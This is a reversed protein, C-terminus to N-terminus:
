PRSGETTILVPVAVRVSEAWPPMAEVGGAALRQQGLVSFAPRPAPRPFRDTTTPRVRDPDAGVAAFVAKALGCWTTRGNGAAHYIGPAANGEGLAVLRQALDRTWTPQGWQDDVVDIEPKSRELELMTRVFNRGTAGYLWATRVVFAEAPGETLVAFEGALKGRGYETRPGTPDDEAYAPAQSPDSGGADGAFVYDTSVHVLRAGVARCARALVGPGDANVLAAPGPESEAGDVNTWAAANVVVDVGDVAAAVAGPDTIDLQARTAAYVDRGALAQVLDTGLMGGAGTVLWRTM